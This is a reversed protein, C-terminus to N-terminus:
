ENRLARVPDVRMARRAPLYAAVLGVAIMVGAAAGLTVPDHPSIGYLMHAVLRGAGLACGVGIGLGLCILILVERMVMRAIAERQAGLAMRLGIERTRGAVSNAILGYLGIAALLLALGGFFGALMATLRERVLSQGIEERVTSVSAVYEHGLSAVAAKIAGDLGQPGEKARVYLVGFGELQRHQTMPIYLVEPSGERVDFLHANSVVGVIEMPPWQSKSLGPLEVHRGIPNRGPFLSGALNESVIVVPASHTDDGWDFSRGRVLRIGTTRFFGPTVGAVCVAVTDRNVAGVPRVREKWVYGAGIGLWGFGASVVGPLSNVRKTLERYYSVWRINRYGNPVPAMRVQLVGRRRFGLRMESAKVFSQLFLGACAVLVLSLAVQTVILGKGLRGTGRGLARTGQRLTANPDTRSARWAPALGAAVGTLVAVATTFGLVRLDPSLDVPGLSSFAWQGVVRCAGDAFAVGITAGAASLVLSETLMQRALRWGGSGLAARVGMEHSRMAARALMLGALNVCAVLLVLASIGLLVYVPKAFVSELYGEGHEGSEVRLRMARYQARVVPTVGAPVAAKRVGPWLSELQARAQDLTVGSRLRAEVTVWQRDLESDAYGMRGAVQPVATLPIAVDQNLAETQEGVRRCVGIIAFPVGEIEITKGVVNRAGGYRKQWFGYSLVAVQAPVGTKLDVDEPGILRGLKPRVGWGSFYGGTVGSVTTTSFMGNAKVAM